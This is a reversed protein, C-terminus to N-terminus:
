NTHSKKVIERVKYEILIFFYSVRYSGYKRVGQHSWKGGFRSLTILILISHFRKGPEIKGM